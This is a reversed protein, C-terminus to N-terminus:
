RRPSPVHLVGAPPLELPGGIVRVTVRLLPDCLLESQSVAPPNTREM